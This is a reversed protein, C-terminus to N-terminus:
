LRGDVITAGKNSTLDKITGILMMQQIPPPHMNKELQENFFRVMTLSLDCSNM